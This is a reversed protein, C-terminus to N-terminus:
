KYALVLGEGINFGATGNDVAFDGNVTAGGNLTAGSNTTVTDAYVGGNAWVNNAYISKDELASVIQDGTITVTEKGTDNDYIVPSQIDAASVSFGATLAMVALIAATSRAKKMKMIILGGIRGASGARYRVM